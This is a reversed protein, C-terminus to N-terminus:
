RLQNLLRLVDQSIKICKRGITINVSTHMEYDADVRHKRLTELRNGIFSNKENASVIVQEHIRLVDRFSYGLEELKKKVMLFAAYYARGVATRSRSIEDYQGDEVLHDALELFQSPDYPLTRITM